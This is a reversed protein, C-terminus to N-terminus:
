KKSIFEAYLRQLVDKTNKSFSGNMIWYYFGTDKRLVDEVRQGKYKGFNFVPVGDEDRVIRGMMDVNRDGDSYKSLSEINNELEDYVDLQGLLVEYTAMTDALASHANNLEKGCFKRYAAVLTRPEMRYFINQVDIFHRGYTEFKLGARNFEEILLPVDFRNSNYGGVDCGDFVELLSKSIQRFTPCDKVDGDTIGHVKTSAEPIHMGPNIRRSKSEKTGDPYVKLYSVEVIRDKVVDTGTTELDFFVIPREINLKKEEM